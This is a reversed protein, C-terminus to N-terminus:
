AAEEIVYPNTRWTPDAVAATLTTINTTRPFTGQVGVRWRWCEMSSWAADWRNPGKAPCTKCVVPVGRPKPWKRETVGDSSWIAVARRGDPHACRVYALAALRYGAARMQWHYPISGAPAFWCSTRWPEVAAARFANAPAPLEGPNARRAPGMVPPWDGTAHLQELLENRVRAAEDDARAALRAALLAPLDLGRETPLGSREGAMLYGSRPSTDANPLDATVAHSVIALDGTGRGWSTGVGADPGQAPTPLLSNENM